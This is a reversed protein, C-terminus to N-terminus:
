VAPSIHCVFKTNPIQVLPVDAALENLCSYVGEHAYHYDHWFIVGGPQIMELAKQSDSRVLDYAHGADVFIFDVQKRYPTHDFKTTDSYIQEIKGAEATGHFHSGVTMGRSYFTDDNTQQRIPDDPHLDVTVIRADAPSNMAMHLATLGDFTGFEFMLRPQRHVCLTSMVVLEYPEANALAYPTMVADQIMARALLLGPFLEELPRPFIRRVQEFYRNAARHQMQLRIRDLRGHTDRTLSQTKFKPSKQTSTPM